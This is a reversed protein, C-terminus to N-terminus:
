VCLILEQTLYVIYLLYIYELVHVCACVCLRVCVCMCVCVNTTYRTCQMDIVM